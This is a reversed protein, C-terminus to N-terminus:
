FTFSVSSFPELRFFVWTWSEPTELLGRCCTWRNLTHINIYICTHISSTHINPFPTCKHTNTCVCPVHTHKVTLTFMHPSMDSLFRHSHAHTNTPTLEQLEEGTCTRASSDGMTSWLPVTYSIIGPNGHKLSWWVDLVSSYFRICISVLEHMLVYMCDCGYVLMCIYFYGCIPRVTCMRISANQTQM